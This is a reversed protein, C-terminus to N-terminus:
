THMTFLMPRISIASFFALALWNSPMCSFDGTIKSNSYTHDGTQYFHRETRFLGFGKDLEKVTYLRGDFIKGAAVPDGENAVGQVRMHKEGHAGPVMGIRQLFVSITVEEVIGPRLRLYFEVVPGFGPAAPLNIGPLYKEEEVPNMIVIHQSKPPILNEKFQRFDPISAM